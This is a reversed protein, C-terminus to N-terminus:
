RFKVESNRISDMQYLDRMKALKDLSLVIDSLLLQHLFERQQTASLDALLPAAELSSLDSDSCNHWREVLVTCQAALSTDYRCLL